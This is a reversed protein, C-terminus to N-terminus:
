AEVEMQSETGGFPRVAALHYAECSSNESCFGCAWSEAAPLRELSSDCIDRILKARSGVWTMVHAALSPTMNVGYFATRHVPKKKMGGGKIKGGAAKFRQQEEWKAVQEPDPRILLHAELRQAREKLAYLGTQVFWLPQVGARTSSKLDIITRRVMDRVQLIDIYGLLPLHIDSHVGYFDALMGWEEPEFWVEKQAFLEGNGRALAGESELYLRTAIKVEEQLTDHAQEVPSAAGAAALSEPIPNAAVPTAKPAREHKKPCLTAGLEATVSAEWALGFAAAVGSIQPKGAIRHAYFGRPCRDAESLASFSLHNLIQNM